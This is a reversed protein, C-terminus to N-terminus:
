VVAPSALSMDDLGLDNFQLVFWLREWVSLPQPFLCFWVLAFRVFTHFAGLSAREEGLSTIVISFPNFFM